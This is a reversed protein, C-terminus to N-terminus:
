QELAVLACAALDSHTEGSPLARQQICFKLERASLDLFDKLHWAM